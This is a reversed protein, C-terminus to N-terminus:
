GSVPRFKPLSINDSVDDFVVEVPLDCRLNRPDGDVGVINTYIHPGEDLQVLATVYPVEEAWGPHFHRYHVGFTYITGRGSMKRWEIDWSFCAPCFDRPYFYPKECSKCYPLWLEHNKCGEWYRKTEPSPTPLPKRYETTM